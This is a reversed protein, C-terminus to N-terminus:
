CNERERAAQAEATRQMIEKALYQVLDIAEEFADQLNDRGDFTMLPQGYKAIGRITRKKLERIVYQEVLEQNM